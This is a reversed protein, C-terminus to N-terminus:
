HRPSIRFSLAFWTPKGSSSNVQNGQLDIQVLKLNGGPWVAAPAQGATIQAPSWQTLTEHPPSGDQLHVFSAHFGGYQDATVGPKGAVPKGPAVLDHFVTRESQRNARMSPLVSSPAPVLSPTSTAQAWRILEGNALTYYIYESWQPAGFANILFVEPHDPTRASEFSLGPPETPNQANPYVQVSALSTEQLDQRMWRVGSEFQESVLFAGEAGASWRKISVMLSGIATLLLGALFMYIMLEILTV